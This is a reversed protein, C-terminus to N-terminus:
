RARAASAQKLNALGAEFDPGVMKDMFLGFWRTVPSRGLDGDMSMLVRTGPGAPVLVVAGRATMGMQEFDIRYVFDSPPHREAITMRGDGQSKSRWQSWSGVEDTVPSYSMQMAPDRRFWVGWLSWSRLDGVLPYIAEPRGPIVLSREVRYRGPLFFGVLLLVLWVAVLVGFVKAVTKM